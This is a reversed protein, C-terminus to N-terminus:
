KKFIVDVVDDAFECCDKYSAPGYLVTEGPYHVIIESTLNRVGIHATSDRYIYVEFPIDPSMRSFLHEDLWNM